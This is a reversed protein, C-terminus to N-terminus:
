MLLFVPDARAQQTAPAPAGSGVTRAVPVRQEVFAAGKAGPDHVIREIKPSVGDVSVLLSDPNIARFVAPFKVLDRPHFGAVRMRKEVLTFAHCKRIIAGHEGDKVVFSHQAHDANRVLLFPVHSYASPLLRASENVVSIGITVRWPM